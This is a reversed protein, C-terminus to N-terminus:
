KSVTDFLEVDVNAPNVWSYYKELHWKNKLRVYKNEEIWKHLENYSEMIKDNPGKHRIVAYAQSPITLTVMDTAIDEYENVEVGIWYGDEEASDNKVVFAGYQHLPNVVQKIERIRESLRLSAKPIEVIYQDGPCMVRFGVLKIEGLETITKNQIITESM